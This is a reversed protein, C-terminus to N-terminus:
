LKLHMRLFADAKRLLDARIAGDLLSHELEPPYVVLEVPKRAIRLRKDMERSQAINVNFDGEAHFMLVPAKFAAANAAPSGETIHPGSGIFDRQLRSNTFNLSQNKLMALDTVPAVAVVAKFLDPDLVNSQLAAYGGYSWGFIALKNADAIGQSVLWRGADTVDGIATKWNQFGNNMYWQDGYGASGRFNPQLVAFGRQAFFQALWDFGWADRSSPGGHPMVLAPLNRASTVGPPLTLYGPISTGDKAPYTIAQMPSLTVGKLAPRALLIEQLSNRSRNLIYFHGPDVDSGASVLLVQEDANAAEIRVLPLKPLAKALSQAVAKYTPDFYEIRARDTVYNAGIVRGSRGVTELGDVDVEPHAFVLERQMSGDLAIRYLADRGDLPELFYAANITSDVALPVLGREGQNQVKSIGLEQWETENVKRYFHRYNGTLFGAGSAKTTTKLRIHGAGDSLYNVVERDAREINAVKGTRTDMRDVGLGEETRAARAGTGQEPVYTRALLVSGDVGNLWDVIGGDSQRMGQQTRTNRQGLQVANKGQADVSMMRSVPVRLGQYDTLGTLVCVVRDNASWGCRRINLPAADARAVQTLKVADLDVVVASTNRGEGPGVLVLRKGDASLSASYVAPLAGLRAAADQEVANGGSAAGQAALPLLLALVTGLSRVATRTM